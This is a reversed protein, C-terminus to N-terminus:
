FFCFNVSFLRCKASTLTTCFFKTNITPRDCRNVSMSTSLFTSYKPLNPLINFTTTLGDGEYAPECTNAREGM